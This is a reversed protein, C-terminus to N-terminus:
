HCMQISWTFGAQPLSDTGLSRFIWFYAWLCSLDFHVAKGTRWRWVCVHCLHVWVSTMSLSPLMHQSAPFLHTTSSTSPCSCSQEKPSALTRCTLSTSSKKRPPRLTEQGYLAQRLLWILAHFARPTCDPQTTLTRTGAALRTVKLWDNWRLSNMFTVHVCMFRTPLLFMRPSLSFALAAALVASSMLRSFGRQLPLRSCLSELVVALITM